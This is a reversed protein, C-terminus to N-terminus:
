FEKPKFTGHKPTARASGWLGGHVTPSYEWPVSSEMWRLAHESGPHATTLLQRSCRGHDPWGVSAGQLVQLHRLGWLATHGSRSKGLEAGLSRRPASPLLQVMGKWEGTHSPLFCCQDHPLHPSSPVSPSGLSWPTPAPPCGLLQGLPRSASLPSATCLSLSWTGEACEM